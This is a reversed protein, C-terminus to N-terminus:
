HDGELSRLEKRAEAVSKTLSDGNALHILCHEIFTVATDNSIQERMVVNYPVDFDSLTLAIENGNCSNLFMMKLGYRVAQRIEQELNNITINETSNVKLSGNDGDSHGVYFIINYRGNRIKSRLVALPPQPLIEFNDDDEEYGLTQKLNRLAQLDPEVDIRNGREISGETGAIVLIRVRGRVPTVEFDRSSLVIETDPFRQRIWDCMHWPLRQVIPDEPVELIIQPRSGSPIKGIITHINALDAFSFWNRIKNELRTSNTTLNVKRPSEDDSIKRQGYNTEEGWARYSSRPEENSKVTQDSFVKRYLTPIDANSNLRGHGKVSKSFIINKHEIKARIEFGTEFSGKSVRLVIKYSM